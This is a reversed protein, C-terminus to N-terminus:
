KKTFDPKKRMDMFKQRREQVERLFKNYNDEFFNNDQNQRNM